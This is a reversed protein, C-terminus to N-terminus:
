PALDTVFGQCAEAGRTDFAGICILHTLSLTIDIFRHVYWTVRTGCARRPLANLPTGAIDFGVIEITLDTQQPAEM